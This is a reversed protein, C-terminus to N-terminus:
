IFTTCIKNKSKFSIKKGYKGRPLCIGWIYKKISFYHRLIILIFKFCLLNNSAMPMLQDHSFNHNALSEKVCIKCIVQRPLVTLEDYYGVM